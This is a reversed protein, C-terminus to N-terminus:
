QPVGTSETRKHCAHSESQWRAWFRVPPTASALCLVTDTHGALTTSCNMDACAMVHIQDSNSAVAVSPPLAVPNAHELGVGGRLALASSHVPQGLFRLATIEDPNGLLQHKLKLSRPTVRLQTIRCSAAATILSHSLPLYLLEALETARTSGSPRPQKYVRAARASNWVKILGDEGVTSLL